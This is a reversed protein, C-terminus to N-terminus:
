APRQADAAAGGGSGGTPPRRKACRRGGLRAWAPLRRDRVCLATALLAAATALCVACLLALTWSAGLSFSALPLRANVAGRGAAVLSVAVVACAAAGAAVLALAAVACKSSSLTCALVAVAGGLAAAVALLVRAAVVAAWAADADADVDVDGLPQAGGGPLQALAGLLGRLQERTLARCGAAVPGLWGAACWRWLGLELTTTTTAGSPTPAVPVQLAATLQQTGALAVTGLALGATAAAAACPAAPWRM